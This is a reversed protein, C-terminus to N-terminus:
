SLKKAAIVMRQIITLGCLAAFIYALPAFYAPFICFLIFFLITEGGEMLGINYLFSKDGYQHEDKIGAREAIAAYALFSVATLTFSAILIMASQMNQPVAFAFGLPIVIYFIYDAISDIYGGFPTPRGMRAVAGDLGDIIRNIIILFLAILYAQYVLFISVAIAIIVGIYSLMNAGVGTRHLIRAIHNLIPDIHPRIRADFM